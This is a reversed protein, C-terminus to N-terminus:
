NYKFVKSEYDIKHEKTIIQRKCEVYGEEMSIDTGYGFLELNMSYGDTPYTEKCFQNIKHENVIHVMGLGLLYILVISIIMLSFVIVIKDLKKM